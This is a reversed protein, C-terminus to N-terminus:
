NLIELATKSAPHTQRDPYLCHNVEAECGNMLQEAFVRSSQGILRELDGVGDAVGLAHAETFFADEGNISSDKSKYHAGINLSMRSNSPMERTPKLSPPVRESPDFRAEVGKHPRTQMIQQILGLTIHLVNNEHGDKCHQRKMEHSVCWSSGNVIFKFDHNCPKDLISPVAELLSVRWLDKSTSLILPIRQQWPPDTFSGALEVSTIEPSHPWTVKLDVSVSNDTTSHTSDNSSSDTDRTSSWSTSPTPVDTPLDFFISSIPARKPLLVKMDPAAVKRLSISRVHMDGFCDEVIILENKGGALESSVRRNDTHEWRPSTGEKQVLYKYEADSVEEVPISESKWTPYIEGTTQLPVASSPEWKGLAPASGVVFVEEGVHTHCKVEFIM